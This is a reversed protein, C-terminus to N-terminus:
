YAEQQLQSSQRTSSYQCRKRSVYQLHVVIVQFNKLLLVSLARQLHPVWRTGNAKVAKYTRVEMSEAIEKLERLAKPSYHYQKWLGQLMEKTEQLIPVASLTDTISLELRHAICHVKIIHPIEHKLPAYVCGKEAGHAGLAVTKDKWDRCLEAMASGIAAKIESAKSNECAKLGVFSNVLEGDILHCVYVDEVERVGVDNASDAMVSFFKSGQLKNSLGHKLQESIFTVFTKSAKDDMYTSGLEVGHKKELICLHPFNTFPIERKAVFYAIDFLTEMKWAVEATM